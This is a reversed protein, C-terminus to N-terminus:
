TALRDTWFDCLAEEETCAFRVSCDLRRGAILRALSKLLRFDFAFGHAQFNNM